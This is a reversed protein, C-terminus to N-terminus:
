WIEKKRLSPDEVHVGRLRNQSGSESDVDEETLRAMDACNLLPDVHENDDEIM